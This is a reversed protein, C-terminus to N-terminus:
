FVSKSTLGSRVRQGHAGIRRWILREALPGCMEVADALAAPKNAREAIAHRVCEDPASPFALTYQQLRSALLSFLCNESFRRDRSGQDQGGVRVLTHHALATDNLRVEFFDDRLLSVVSM